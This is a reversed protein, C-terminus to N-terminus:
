DKLQEMFKTIAEVAVTEDAGEAIVEIETGAKVGLTLIQITSIANVTKVGNSLSIKSEFTKALAVLESAPRAHLGTENTITVKKATM